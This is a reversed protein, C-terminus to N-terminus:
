DSEALLEVANSVTDEPKVKYWAGLIKGKEDILFSSRIIGMSKKGYVSKEGWAGYKEAVKHDTDSLLQFGLKYKDDFKKQMAPADPSIGISVIGAKELESDAQSVSCAQTTCGPTDAKPYFYLLVKKGAFDSLSCFDDKQDKLKFLPAKDSRKLQNM